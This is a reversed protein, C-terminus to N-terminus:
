VAEAGSIIEILEKTIQAQRTRNYTISLSEILDKANRTANDMATMRAGQESAFSELMGLYIQTSLNLPLLYELVAEPEPEFDYNLSKGDTAKPISLPVLSKPTPIQTLASEFASYVLTVSDFEGDMFRMTIDDRVTQAGELSPAPRSLNDYTAIVRDGYLSRMIGSAKRGVTMIKAVKGESALNGVLEQVKKGLSSNFSGCLGRDSSILLILRTRDLDRGVLLEPGNAASTSHALATVIDYMSESYPRNTRTRQQARRLKAAAVMKMASTIRQTGKISAIRNRLQKVSAM